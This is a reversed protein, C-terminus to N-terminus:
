PNVARVLNGAEYFETKRLEGATSYVPWPGFWYFHAGDPEAVIRARGRRWVRGNPHFYTIALLGASDRFHQETRELTGTPGYFRAKGVARGHRFRERTALRRPPGPYYARWPGHPRLKQDYRHESWFGVPGRSTTCSSLVLMFLLLLFLGPRCRTAM